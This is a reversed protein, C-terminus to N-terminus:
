GLSSYAQNTSGGFNYGWKQTSFGIDQTAAEDSFFEVFEVQLLSGEM